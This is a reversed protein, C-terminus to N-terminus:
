GVGIRRLLEAYNRNFIQEHKTKNEGKYDRGFQTMFIDYNYLPDIIKDAGVVALLFICLMGLKAM